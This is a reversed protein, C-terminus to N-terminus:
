IRRRAARDVLAARRRRFGVVGLALLSWWAGSSTPSTSCGSRKAGVTPVPAPPTPDEAYCVWEDPCLGEDAINANVCYGRLAGSGDCVSDFPCAADDDCPVFCSATGGHLVCEGEACDESTWCTDCVACTGGRSAPPDDCADGVGNGRTDTQDPNPVEPCNDFEDRVGDMDADILRPDSSGTAVWPPAEYGGVEAARAGIERLWDAYAPVSTYVTDGCGEPGRSVVGIVQGFEDIAPGGSDGPCTGSTGLWERYDVQFGFPCATGVCQVERDRLIRRTGSGSNDGISGYGVATYSEGTRVDYDVRPLAYPVLDQPVNRDLILLAIDYGCLDDTDPPVHLELGRYNNGGSYRFVTDSTARFFRPAVRTTFGAQGCNVYRQETNYVCHQATLVLNPAILVGSCSPFAVRALGMVAVNEEDVEGGRIMGEATRWEEAHVETAAAVSLSLLVLLASCSRNWM